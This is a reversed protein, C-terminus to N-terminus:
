PSGLAWRLNETVALQSPALGFRQRFSTSFHAVSKYGVAYAIDSVRGDGSELLDKARRLRIERILASPSMGLSSKVLRFLTTRDQNMATALAQVDFCDEALHEEIARQLRDLLTSSRRKNALAVTPSNPATASENAPSTLTAFPIWCFADSRHTAAHGRIGRPLLDRGTAGKPEELTVLSAGRWQVFTAAAPTSVTANSTM